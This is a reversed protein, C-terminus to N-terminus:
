IANLISSNERIFFYLDDGVGKDSWGWMDAKLKINDPIKAYLMSLELTNPKRGLFDVLTDHIQNYKDKDKNM